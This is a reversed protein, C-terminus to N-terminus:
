SNKQFFDIFKEIMVKTVFSRNYAYPLIIYRDKNEKALHYFGRSIREHEHFDAYDFKNCSKENSHRRDLARHVRDQALFTCQPTISSAKLGAAEHLHFVWEKAKKLAEFLEQDSPHPCHALYKKLGQYVISSDMFRDCIVWYGKKLHPAIVEQWHHHRAALILLLEEEPAWGQCFILDRVRSGLTTGGPERTLICPLGKSTLYRFLRKSQTSKGVGEGGEFVVFGGSQKLFPLPADLYSFSTEQNTSLELSSTFNRSSSCSTPFSVSSPSTRINYPGYSASPITSSHHSTNHSALSTKVNHSVHPSSSITAKHQTMGGVPFPQRSARPRSLGSSAKLSGEKTKEQHNNHKHKLFTSSSHPDNNKSSYKKQSNNNQLNGGFSSKKDGSSINKEKKPGLFKKKTAGSSTNKQFKTFSTHKKNKEGGEFSPHRNNKRSCSSTESGEFSDTSQFSADFPPFSSFLSGYIITPNQPFNKKPPSFPSKSSLDGDKELSSM